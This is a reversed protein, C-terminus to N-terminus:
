CLMRGCYECVVIATRKRADHCLYPPLKMHCGSCTGNEVTVLGWDKKNLFIRYYPKLWNPDVPAALSERQKTVQELEAQLAKVREDMAILDDKVGGQESRLEAERRLVDATAKDVEEMTGLVRDEIRIIQEQCVAIEGEMTKFEKNTKLQFQQERLKTIKQGWSQIELELEKIASQRAKQVDKAEAVAAQHEQLRSEIEHKRAPIDRLETQLRLIQRDCDQVALLQEIISTAM